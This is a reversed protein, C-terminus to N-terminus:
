LENKSLNLYLVLFLTKIKTETIVNLCFCLVLHNKLKWFLPVNFNFDSTPKENKMKIQLRFVLDIYVFLYRIFSTVM